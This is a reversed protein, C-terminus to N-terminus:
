FCTPSLCLACVTLSVSRVCHSLSDSFSCSFDQDKTGKIEDYLSLPVSAPFCFLFLSLSDSFSYSFCPSVSLSLPVSFCLPQSVCLILSHAHSYIKTKLEQSKMMVVLVPSLLHTHILSLTLTLNFPLHRFGSLPLSILPILLQILLQIDAGKSVGNYCSVM